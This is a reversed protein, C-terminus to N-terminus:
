NALEKFGRGEEDIDAWLSKDPVVGYNEAYAQVNAPIEDDGGEDDARSASPEETKGEPVVEKDKNEELDSSFSIKAEEPIADLVRDLVSMIGHTEAGEDNSFRYETDRTTTDSSLLVAKIQNVVAPFHGDALKEQCFLEVRDGYATEKAKQAEVALSTNQKRLKEVEADAQAAQRSAENFKRDSEAAEELTTQLMAVPGAYDSYKHSETKLLKLKEEATGLKALQALLEEMKDEGDYESTEYSDPEPEVVPQPQPEEETKTKPKDDVRYGYVGLEYGLDSDSDSNYAITHDEDYDSVQEDMESFSIAGLGPIFPNNTFAGGVLTPGYNYTKTDGEPTEVKESSTYDNRIEASFYRYVGEKVLRAGRRNLQVKGFMVGKQDTTNDPGSVEVQRISFPSSGDKSEVWGIAGGKYRRHDEDIAIARPVVSRDFNFKLGSLYEDDFDLDGYYPHEFKGERLFPIEVEVRADPAMNDTDIDSLSKQVDASVEAFAWIRDQNQDDQSV